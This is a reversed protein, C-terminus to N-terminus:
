GSAVSPSARRFAVSPNIMADTSHGPTPRDASREGSDQRSFDPIVEKAARLMAQLARFPPPGPCRVLFLPPVEGSAVEEQSSPVACSVESRLLTPINRPTHALPTGSRGHM